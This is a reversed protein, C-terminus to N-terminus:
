EPIRKKNTGYLALLVALPKTETGENPSEKKIAELKVGNGYPSVTRKRGRM